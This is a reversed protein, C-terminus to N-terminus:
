GIGARIAAYGMLAAHGCLGMLRSSTIVGGGSGRTYESLCPGMGRDIKTGVTGFYVDHTLGVGQTEEYIELKGM